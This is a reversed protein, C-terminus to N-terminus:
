HMKSSETKCHYYPLAINKYYVEAQPNVQEWAQLYAESLDPIWYKNEEIDALQRDYRSWNLDATVFGEDEYFYRRAIINGNRSLIQTAGVLQRTQEIEEKPFRFATVKGCHSAHIVPVHLLKAFTVPTQLALKQNYKRLEEREKPADDPLDWWCSGALVIDVKGSMRKITDYRLMEWCLAIGINGIPTHLIHDTDGRTYYCNEFQTPIDKKHTFVKGDPFILQFSNYVNDGELLLYSGGIIISCQNSLRKLISLVKSNKNAVDLMKPSFGIASTFFEPFLILQVGNDSAQKTYDAVKKMNFDVDFLAANMQVAAIRMIESGKVM